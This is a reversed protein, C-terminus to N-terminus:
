FGHRHILVGIPVNVIMYDIFEAPPVLLKLKVEEGMM